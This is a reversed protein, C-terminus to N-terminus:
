SLLLTIGLIILGISIIKYKNINENFYYRSIITVWIYNLASIPYLVSLEIFKLLYIYFFMPLLNLIVGVFLYPNLVISFINKKIKKSGIKFFASGLAGMVSGLLILSLWLLKM